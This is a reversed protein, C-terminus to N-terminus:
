AYAVREIVIKPQVRKMPDYIDGQGIRRSWIELFKPEHKSLLTGLYAILPFAPNTIWWPANLSAVVAPAILAIAFAKKDMGFLREPDNIARCYAEQM